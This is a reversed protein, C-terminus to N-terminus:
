KIVQIRQSELLEGNGQIRLTYIGASWDNSKLTISASGTSIDIVKNLVEQGQANLVLLEIQDMELANCNLTIDSNTPNPYLTFRSEDKTNEQVAAQKPVIGGGTPCTEECNLLQGPNVPVIYQIGNCEWELYTPLSTTSGPTCATSSNYTYTVTGPGAGAPFYTISCCSSADCEIFGYWQGVSEGPSLLCDVFDQPPDVEFLAYCSKEQSFTVPQGLFNVLSRIGSRRTNYCDMYNNLHCFTGSTEAYVYFDVLDVEISGGCNRERYEYVFTYTCSAPKGAVTQSPLTLHQVPGWPATCTDCPTQAISPISFISFFLLLLLQSNAYFTKM